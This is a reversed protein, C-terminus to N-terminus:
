RCAQYRRRLAGPGAGARSRSRLFVGLATLADDGLVACIAASAHSGSRVTPFPWIPVGRPEAGFGAREGAGSLRRGQWRQGCPSPRAEQLARKGSGKEVPQERGAEGARCGRPM